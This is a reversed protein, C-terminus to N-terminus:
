RSLLNKLEEISYPPDKRHLMAHCNPCVPRLDRVPDVVYEERISALPIIHHVHIFDKGLSGYTREFNQFCVQCDLGYHKIAISKAENNREYRNVLVKELAGETFKLKDSVENPFPNTDEKTVIEFGNRTLIRFCRSGLGGKFDYPGLLNGTLRNAALGVLAKPPYRRESFLVDYGTSDGFDHKVGRDFDYIAEIIHHRSIGNPIKDAM